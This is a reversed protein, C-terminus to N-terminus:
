KRYTVKRRAVVQTLKLGDGKRFPRGELNKREAQRSDNSHERCKGTLISTHGANGNNVQKKGRKKTETLKNWKGQNTDRRRGRALQESKPKKGRTIPSM